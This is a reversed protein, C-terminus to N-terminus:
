EESVYIDQIPKRTPEHMIRLYTSFSYNGDNSEKSGNQEQQIDYDKLSFQQSQHFYSRYQMYILFFYSLSLFSPEPGSREM